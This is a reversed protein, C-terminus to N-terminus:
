RYLESQCKNKTLNQLSESYTNLHRNLCEALLKDCECIQHECTNDVDMCSVKERYLVSYYTVQAPQCNAVITAQYCDSHQRCCRDSNDMIENKDNLHNLLANCRSSSVLVAM